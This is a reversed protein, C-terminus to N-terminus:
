VKKVRGSHIDLAQKLTYGKYQELSAIINVPRSQEAKELTKAIYENNITINAIESISSDPVLSVAQKFLGAQEPLVSLKGDKKELVAKSEGLEDTVLLTYEKINPNNKVTNNILNMRNERIKKYGEAISDFPVLPDTGDAVRGLVRLCSTELPADLDIMRIKRGGESTTSLLQDISAQEHMMKDLMVSRNETLLRSYVARSIMSSQAHVQRHDVTNKGNVLETKRLAAKYVDPAIVGSVQGESDLARRFLENNKIATTKGSAINGRVAYTTVEKDSLRESLAKAKQYETEIIQNNIERSEPTWNEPNDLYKDFAEGKPLEVDYTYAEYTDITGESKHLIKSRLAQSNGKIEKDKLKIDVLVEKANEKSITIEKLDGNEDVIVLKDDKSKLLSFEQDKLLGKHEQNFTSIFAPVETDPMESLTNSVVIRAQEKISKIENAIEEESRNSNLNEQPTIETPSDVITQLTIEPNQPFNQESINITELIQNEQPGIPQEVPTQIPTEQVEVAVQSNEVGVAEQTQLDGM